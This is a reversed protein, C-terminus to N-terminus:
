SGFKYSLPIPMHLFRLVPLNVKVAALERVERAATEERLIM